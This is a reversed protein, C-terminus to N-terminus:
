KTQRREVFDWDTPPPTAQYRRCRELYICVTEDRPEAQAAAQFYQEALEFDRRRYAELGERYHTLFEARSVQDDDRLGILEFVHVPEGKGYVAVCDLERVLLQDGAERVTHQSILIGVGYTNCATELRAALNVADGLATYDFRREGGINGVVPAGTNIGIRLHLEPSGQQKWELNLERLRSQMRLATRCARYAHDPQPTPAGYLAMIADGIYKDLTGGETLVLNSMEDLYRNLLTVLQEPDMRESLSTFGVLDSFLITVPRKEGGLRLLAPNAVLENVVEPAVYKSFAGRIMRKERGEVVSVYATSSLMSFAIALAPAVVPIHLYSAGFQHWALLLISALLALGAAAGWSAGRWFTAAGVLLALAVLLAFTAGPHLPVPYNGTLLNHLATAQVETGYTWGRLAGVSDPQDYFPSRFRDEPHFGSGLVVIKDRLWERPMMPGLQLLAFASFVPFAGDERDPRSPPGTFLIPVTRPEHGQPTRAYQRPLTPLRLGGTQEAVALLSDLNLGRAHAYLALPVGPVLGSNTRVGLVADRITEHPTPLDATGVGAAVNAFFSDPPVLVRGTSTAETKAALVVNGARQIAARLREDGRGLVDLEPYRRDLFVDLGITRAGAGAVVEILDALVTRPFPVLYPWEQVSTSDFLVLVIPSSDARPLAASRMRWDLTTLELPETLRRLIPAHTAAFAALAAGGTVLLLAVLRRLRM